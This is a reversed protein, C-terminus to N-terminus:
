RYSNLDGSRRSSGMMFIYLNAVVFEFSQAEICVAMLCNVAWSGDWPTGHTIVKAETLKWSQQFERHSAM